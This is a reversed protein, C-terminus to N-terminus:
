SAAPLVIPLKRLRDIEIAMMEIRGSVALKRYLRCASVKVSGRQLRMHEAINQLGM